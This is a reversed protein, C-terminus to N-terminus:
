SPCEFPPLAAPITPLAMLTLTDVVTSLGGLAGGLAASQENLSKAQGCLADVVPVAAIAEQLQQGNVGKLIAELSQVKALLETVKDELSEVKASGATGTSGREGQGGGSGAGGPTGAEGQAGAPGAAYWAVKKWRKPCRAKASRVVRLTGKGKGKAKYCAHIKGDRGVIGAASAPQALVLVALVFLLCAVGCSLLTWVPDRRIKGM